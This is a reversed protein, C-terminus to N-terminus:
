LSARVRALAADRGALTGDLQATELERLLAGIRPGRPVGAALLDEACLFPEPHLDSTTWAAREAEARTIRQDDPRLRRALELACACAARRARRVRVARTAVPDALVQSLLEHAEVVFASEHRSCKLSEVVRVAFAREDPGDDLPTLLAALGEGLEVPRRWGSLLRCREDIRALPAGFAPEALGCRALLLLFRDLAGRACVAALEKHVRERAMGGLLPASARAAAETGPDIEFGLVAGFRVLRLLRLADEEFRERPDGIARLRAARLDDLGGQPDYLEDTLPDLYLANVTFDRRRADEAADAGFSVSDPRRGDSYGSETRYTTHEISVGDHVVVVTGFEIGVPVTRPFSGLVLAPPASSCLDADGVPRGLALDRVCGGVLWARHGLGRLVQATDVAAARLRPPLDSVSPQKISPM